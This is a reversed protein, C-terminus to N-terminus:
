EGRVTALIGAGVGLFVLVTAMGARQSATAQTVAALDHMRGTRYNVHTLLVVATSADIGAALDDDDVLRLSFGREAAASDAIYLDTPFNGRESVVTRRTPPGAVAIAM